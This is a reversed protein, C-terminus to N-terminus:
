LTPELKEGIREALQGGHGSVYNQLVKREARADVEQKALPVATGMLLGGVVQGAIERPTHFQGTSIVKSLNSAIPGAVSGVLAGRALQGPTARASELTELRDLAAQADPRSVDAPATALFALKHLCVEFPTM